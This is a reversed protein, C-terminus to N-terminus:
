NFLKITANIFHKSFITTVHLIASYYISLNIAVFAALLLDIKDSSNEFMPQLTSVALCVLNLIIIIAFFNAVIETTKQKAKELSAVVDITTENSIDNTIYKKM